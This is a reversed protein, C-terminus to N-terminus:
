SEAEVRNVESATKLQWYLSAHQFSFICICLNLKINLFYLDKRDQNYQENEQNPHYFNKSGQSLSHLRDALDTDTRESPTGQLVDTKCVIAHGSSCASSSKLVVERTM